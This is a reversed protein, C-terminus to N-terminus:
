ILYVTNILVKNVAHNDFRVYMNSRASFNLCLLKYREITGYVYM